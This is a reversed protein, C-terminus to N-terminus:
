SLRNAIWLLCDTFSSKYDIDFAVMHYEIRNDVTVIAANDFESKLLEELYARRRERNNTM